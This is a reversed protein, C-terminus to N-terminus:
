QKKRGNLKKKMKETQEWFEETQQDDLVVGNFKIPLTKYVWSDEVDLMNSFGIIGTTLRVIDSGCMKFSLVGDNQIVDIYSGEGKSADERPKQRFLYDVAEELSDKSIGGNYDEIEKDRIQAFISKGKDKKM